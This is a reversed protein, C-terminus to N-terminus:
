CITGSIADKPERVKLQSPTFPADPACLRLIDVICCATYARVGKDKHQILQHSAVDKAVKVLSDTDVTEQEMESLEKSLADLRKLLTDISIPKGPRWTLPENFELAVLGQEQEQEQELEEEEEPASRRPAM